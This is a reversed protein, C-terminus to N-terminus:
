LISITNDQFTVVDGVRLKKRVQTEVKDNVIVLGDQILLKAEGGSGVLSLTKLLNNLQIYEEKLKFKM